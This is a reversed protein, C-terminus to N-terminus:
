DHLPTVIRNWEPHRKIYAVVLPCLPVLKLNNEEIYALAKEIIATAAGKGELAPETETHMLAIKGPLERYQIIALHEGVKMEFRSENQNKFLELLQYEEKMYNLKINWRAM